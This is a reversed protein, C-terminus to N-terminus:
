RVRSGPEAGSDPSLLYIGDGSSAALVMGESVGFKMKRPALNAVCVTLRGVLEKPDYAKRIGAFVNREVGGLDLKLRLLRDAGEVLEAEAIRAIRLDVKVFDDITCQETLPEEQWPGSPEPAEEVPKSSEIMANVGARDIRDLLREFPPITANEFDEDIGSWTLERGLFRAVKESLTPVVPALWTALIRVVHLATTITGRAREPDTKITRWPEQDNVLRNAEDALAMVRRMARAFDCSEFHQAVEPSAARLRDVLARGDAPLAGLKRDLKDLLSGGARSALNVFKGVLDSNVREVFDDLNLDLDDVRATLKCAFYYRLYVPDLHDLYTRASVFTGRSKSMKSGDVTLFGHIQVRRPTRLGAGMLMAPWFLTHFYTIDKGIFHHIEFEAGEEVGTAGDAVRWIADFNEGIRECLEETASVYGIPADVWVYFFLDDKGPIPFGFYPGDRSIDWDRLDDKLWEELKNRVEPQVHGGDVWERLRDQFHALRFFFHRSARRVPTTGCEACRPEILDTPDYTSSCSECSDGYQDPTKCKPCTGRVLRDPLFIGCNPCFTQEIDKEIVHGGAQLKAFVEETFKRNTPSNTSGYHDFEVGFDAFDRLHDEKMQAILNEPSREERRARLMIPTGHTDDACVYYVRHGRLRQFRVWIDTIVYEVMHGIHLAGNAYPLASTVLIRRDSVARSPTNPATM